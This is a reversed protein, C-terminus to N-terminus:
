DDMDCIGELAEKTVRGTLGMWSNDAEDLM